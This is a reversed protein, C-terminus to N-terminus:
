ANQAEWVKERNEKDFKAIPQYITQLGPCTQKLTSAFTDWGLEEGDDGTSLISEDLTISRLGRVRTISAM